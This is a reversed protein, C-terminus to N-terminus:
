VQEIGQNDEPEEPPIQCPTVTARVLPAARAHAYGAVVACLVMFALIAAVILRAKM